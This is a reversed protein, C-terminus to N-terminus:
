KEKNRQARRLKITSVLAHNFATREIGYVRCIATRRGIEPIWTGCEWNSVAANSVKLRLAAQSQSIGREVRSILLLDSLPTPSQLESHNM